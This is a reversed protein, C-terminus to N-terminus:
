VERKTKGASKYSVPRNLEYEIWAFWEEITGIAMSYFARLIAEVYSNQPYLQLFRELGYRKPKAKAGGKVSKAAKPIEAASNETTPNEATGVSESTQLVEDNASDTASGTRKSM